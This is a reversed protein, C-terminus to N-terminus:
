SRVRVRFWKQTYIQDMTVCETRPISDTVFYIRKLDNDSFSEWLLLSKIKSKLDNISKINELNKVVCTRGKYYIAIESNQIM